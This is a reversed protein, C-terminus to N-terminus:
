CINTAYYIFAGNGALSFLFGLVVAIMVFKGEAKRILMVAPVVGAILTISSAVYLINYAMANSPGYCEWTFFGLIGLSFVAAIIGTGILLIAFVWRRTDSM